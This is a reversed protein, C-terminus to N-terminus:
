WGRGQMTRGAGVMGPVGGWRRMTPQGAAAAVPTDGVAIWTYYRGASAKTWDWTLGDTDFASLDAETTTVTPSINSATAIVKTSQTYRDAESFSLTGLDFYGGNVGGEDAVGGAACIMSGVSAVLGQAAHNASLTMVGRPKFGHGTKAETGTSAPSTGHGIYYDGGKLFLVGIRFTNPAAQPWNQTYGDADMSVPTARGNQAAAGGKASLNRLSINPSANDDSLQSAAVGATTNDDAIACISTAELAATDAHAFGFSFFAEAATAPPDVNLRATLQFLADPKFGAGTISQNGTTTLANHVILKANTIDGGFAVCHILTVNTDATTWTLRFGNGQVAANCEASLVNLHDTITLAKSAHRRGTNTPEVNDQASVCTAFHTTLDTMGVAVIYHQGFGNATLGTTWLIVAVPVFSSGTTVDVCPVDQTENAIGSSAKDFTSFHYYAGPSAGAVQRPWKYYRRERRNCVRAGKRQCDTRRPIVALDNM